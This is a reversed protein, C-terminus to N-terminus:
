RYIQLCSCRVVESAPLTSDHPCDCFIDNGLDWKENIKIWKGNLKKHNERDIKKGGIHIWGKEEMGSAKSTEFSVQNISSSTETRAITSARYESMNEVSDMIEKVLDRHSWGERQAQTIISNLKKRTTNTMLKAKKLANKKNHNELFYDRIGKIVKQSLQKKYVNEFAKITEDLNYIYITELANRLKNKIFEYDINIVIKTEEETFKVGNDKKIKETFELFVKKIKKKNRVSLKKELNKFTKIHKRYSKM